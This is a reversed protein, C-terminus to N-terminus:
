GSISAGDEGDTFYDLDVGKIEFTQQVTVGVNHEVMLEALQRGDLLIVRPTVEEAYERAESSFKSTTIFVGKGARKGHLAGFFRQIDPRGVTSQQAKAQVYILDLGLTDERIVGDVGEDAGAGGLREVSGEPGGYGMARLVDLVLQEFFGWSGERVRDLLDASLASRLERYGADIREEATAADAAFQASEEPPPASSPEGQRFEGFEDFQKLVGLDIREPHEALLTRGRATIRYHARRPRELLGSRFLYTAAWGVRNQLTTVRGSPIREVRDEASLGFEDALIARTAAIEHEAGDEHAALLPRMITQFDPVAM